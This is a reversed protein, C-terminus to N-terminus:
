ENRPKKEKVTQDEDKADSQREVEEGVNSGRKGQGGGIAGTTQKSASTSAETNGGSPKGGLIAPPFTPVEVTSWVPTIVM